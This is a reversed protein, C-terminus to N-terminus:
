NKKFEFTHKQSGNGQNGYNGYSDYHVDMSESTGSLIMSNSTLKQITLNVENSADHYYTISGFVNDPFTQESHFRASIKLQNGSIVYHCDSPLGDISCTGDQRFTWTAGIGSGWQWNQGWGEIKESESVTVTWDGILSQEDIKSCSTSLMITALLLALIGFFKNQNNM